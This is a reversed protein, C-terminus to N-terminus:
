FVLTGFFDPVHFDDLETEIDSWAAYHPRETKDGCKYFNARAVCAENGSSLRDEDPFLERIFSDPIYFKVMWGRENIQTAIDFIKRESIMVREFRDAGLGLHMVGKPNVEFNFYRTDWPSPKYFFEMCSDNCVEGNESEQARLNIEASCMLVSLGEPGRLLKFTTKPSPYLGKTWPEKDVYGIEAREWEGSDISPNVINTGAVLYRM